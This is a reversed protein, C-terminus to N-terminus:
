RADAGSADGAARRPGVETARRYSGWFDLAWDVTGGVRLAAATQAPTTGLQRRTREGGVGASPASPRISIRERSGWSRRRKWCERLPWACTTTRRSRPECWRGCSCRGPVGGVVECRRVSVDTAASEAGRIRTRRRCRRSSTSRTRRRLRRRCRAAGAVGIAILRTKM